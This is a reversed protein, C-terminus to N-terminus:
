PRQKKDDVRQIRKKIKNIKNEIKSIIKTQELDIQTTINQISNNIRVRRDNKLNPKKLANIYKEFRTKLNILKKSNLM